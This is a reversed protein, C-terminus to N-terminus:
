ASEKEEQGLNLFDTKNLQLSLYHSKCKLFARPLNKVNTKKHLLSWSVADNIFQAKRHPSNMIMSMKYFM